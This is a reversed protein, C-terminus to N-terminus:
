IFTVHVLNMDESRSIPDEVVHFFFLFWFFFTYM